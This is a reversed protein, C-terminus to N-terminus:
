REVLFIYQIGEKRVLEKLKKLALKNQKREYPSQYIDVHHFIIGRKTLEEKDYIYAPVNENAAYHVEYGLEQLIRVNEMEFKYLFGSVTTIILIKKM